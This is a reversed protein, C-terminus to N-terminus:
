AELEKLRDKIKAIRAKYGAGANESAALMAKLRDIEAAREEDTM